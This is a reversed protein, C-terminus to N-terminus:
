GPDVGVEQSILEARTSALSTSTGVPHVSKIRYLERRRAKVHEQKSYLRNHAMREERHNTNYKSYTALRNAFRESETALRPPMQYVSNKKDRTM